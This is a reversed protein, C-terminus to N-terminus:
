YAFELSLKVESRKYQYLDFVDDNNTYRYEALVRWGRRFLYQGQLWFGVQDSQRVAEQIAGDLDQQINRAGYGSHEYEVGATFTMEPSRYWDAELLLANRLPSYSLFTDDRALDVRDNLELRYRVTWRYQESRYRWRLDYRHRWGKLHSYTDGALYYSPSYTGTYEHAEITRGIQFRGQIQNTLTDGNVRTHGLGAGYELEWGYHTTDRVVAANFTSVDIFGLDNYQKLFAFGHLRLGDEATGDLYMQGYALMELFTDAGQSTSTLLQEPFAVANDDYGGGLNLLGFWKRPPPDGAPEPYVGLRALGEGALYVLKENRGTRRVSRFWREAQDRDDQQMAVLGLNYAAIENWEPGIVLLEHFLRGANDYQGLRYHTVALNYLLDPTDSGQGRAAEFHDLARRFDGAKFADTGLQTESAGGTHEAAFLTCACCLNLLHVVLQRWPGRPPMDGVTGAEAIKM